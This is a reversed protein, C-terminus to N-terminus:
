PCPQVAISEHAIRFEADWMVLSAACVGDCRVEVGFAEDEVLAHLGVVARRRPGLLAKHTIEPRPAERLLTVTVNQVTTGPNM